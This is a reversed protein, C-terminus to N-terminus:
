GFIKSNGHLRLINDLFLKATKPATVTTKTPLFHGIKSLRDVIVLIADHSTSTKPLDMIFDLSVFEWNTSPIPLPNVLRTPSQTSNKVCQFIDCSHVYTRVDRAMGKWTYSRTRLNRTKTLGLITLLPPIM